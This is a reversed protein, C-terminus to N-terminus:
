IIRLRGCEAEICELISNVKRGLAYLTRFIEQGKVVKIEGFAIAIAFEFQYDFKAGPGFTVIVMEDKVSDWIPPDPMQFFGTGHVSASKSVRATTIPVATKHKATNAIENLAWLFEDGGLYPQFGCFLSQIQPPVDKSRGLSNAMQAVSGAFPFACNKPDTKGSAVAIAYAANDLAGRLNQAIDHAIDGISEPFPVFLKVKHVEHDPKESDPEIVRRYPDSEKFQIIERELDQMLKEARRIKRYSDSFPPTTM